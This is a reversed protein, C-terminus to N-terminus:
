TTVFRCSIVRLPLEHCAIQNTVVSANDRRARRASNGSGFPDFIGEFCANPFGLRTAIM